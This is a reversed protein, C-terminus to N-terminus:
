NKIEATLFKNLLFARWQFSHTFNKSHTENYICIRTRCLYHNNERWIAGTWRVNASTCNQDDKSLQIIRLDLQIVTAFM